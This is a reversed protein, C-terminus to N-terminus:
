TAKHIFFLDEIAIYYASLLEQPAMVKLSKGALLSIEM